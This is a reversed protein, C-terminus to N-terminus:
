VFLNFRFWRPPTRRLFADRTVDSTNDIDHMHRRRRLFASGQMTGFHWYNGLLCELSNSTVNFQHSQTLYVMITTDSASVRDSWLSRTPFDETLGHDSSLSAPQWARYSMAISFDCRKRKRIVCRLAPCSSQVPAALVLGPLGFLSLSHGSERGSVASGRQLISWNVFRLLTLARRYHWSSMLRLDHYVVLVELLTGFPYISMKLPPLSSVHGAPRCM